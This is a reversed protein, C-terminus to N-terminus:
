AAGSPAGALLISCCTVGGEAKAIESVDLTRVRLGRAILREATRPFTVPLVVTDGRGDDAAIRLANAAFPESADVDIQEYGAFPARDVWAPNVVVTGDAVETVATKLHLCDHLRVGEVTYGFPALLAALRDIGDRNTRASLGVFVRRGVRLVDGGDLTAPAEIRALPRHRALAAAVSSTEGRRSEAGPRTVVALEDVVVAADEVFVSDPLGPEQPLKEVVCGLEELLAEYAAHQRRALGVDIPERALHTLECEAFAPSVQRTIAM